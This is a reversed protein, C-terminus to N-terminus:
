KPGMARRFGSNGGDDASPWELVVFGGMGLPDLLAEAERIRSRGKLAALDGIGASAEWIARGEDVLEDIGYGRLWASQSLVSGDDLVQEIALDTTIDCSGPATLWDASTEHAVHTRLWGGDRAALTRSDTGYDAIVVRAARVRAARVWRQAERLLPLRTGAPLDLPLHHRAVTVADLPDGGELSYAAGDGSLGVRLEHWSTGDFSAIDFPLNDLLENAFVLDVQGEGGVVLDDPAYSALNPHALHQARQAASVEVQTWRLVGSTLVEPAAAVIARALTGPGAGWEEVMFVPPRGAETWWEDVARAVVAGFLPGVEPATLFDGRRGAQGSVAYFGEDPDYLAQAVYESVPISGREAIQRDLRAALSDGSVSSM